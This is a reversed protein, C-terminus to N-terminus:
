ILDIEVRLEQLAEREVELKEVRGRLRHEEKITVLDIAKNLYDDLLENETPRYYHDSIGTSHNMLIEINIPKM